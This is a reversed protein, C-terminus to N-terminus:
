KHTYTHIHTHIYIYNETSYLLVKNNIWEIHLLKCRSGRFESEKEGVSGMDKPLRFETINTLRKQKIYLNMQAM